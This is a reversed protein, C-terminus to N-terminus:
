LLGARRVGGRLGARRVGTWLGGWRLGAGRADTRERRGDRRRARRFRARRGRRRGDVFAATDAAPELDM